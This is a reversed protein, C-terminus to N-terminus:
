SKQAMACVGVVPAAIVAGTTANHAM